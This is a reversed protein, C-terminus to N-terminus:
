KEKYYSLLIDCGCEEQPCTIKHRLDAASFLVPMEQWDCERRVTGDFEIVYRLPTCKYGKLKNMGRKYIESAPFYQDAGDINYRYVVDSQTDYKEYLKFAEAGYSIKRWPTDYLRNLGYPVENQILSDLLRVTRPWESERDSINVHCVFNGDKLGTCKDIFDENDHEPHYSASIKVKDFAALKKYYQLPRSLNTNITIERCRDIGSLDDVIRNLFPNISTEGGNFEIVFDTNIRKLRTIVFNFRDYKYQQRNFADVLSGKSLCYSCKYNCWNTANWCFSVLKNDRDGANNITFM